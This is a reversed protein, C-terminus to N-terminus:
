RLLAHARARMTRAATLGGRQPPHPLTGIVNEAVTLDPWVHYDQHVVAISRAIADQPSHLVVAEDDFTLTGADPQHAGVLVKILTSKGAGNEGLLAHIEGRECAFSVDDLAVVPGFTKRIARAGFRKM